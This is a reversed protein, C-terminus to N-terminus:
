QKRHIQFVAINSDPGSQLGVPIFGRAVNAREWMPNTNTQPNETRENNQRIRALKQNAMARTAPSEM